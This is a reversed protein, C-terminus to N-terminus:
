GGVNARYGALVDEGASWWTNAMVDINVVPIYNIIQSIATVRLETEINVAEQKKLEGLPLSKFGAMVTTVVPHEAYRGMGDYKELSSRIMLLHNRYPNGAATLVEPYLSNWEISMELTDIGSPFELKGVLGLAEPESMTYKIEPLKVTKVRGLFSVGNVYVNANVIQGIAIGM